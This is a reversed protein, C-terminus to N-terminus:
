HRGMAHPLSPYTHMYTHEPIHASALPLCQAGIKGKEEEIRKLCANDCFRSMPQCGAFGLFGGTEM